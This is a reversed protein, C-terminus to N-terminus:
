NPLLVADVEIQKKDIDIKNVASIYYNQMGYGDNGQIVKWNKIETTSNLKLLLNKAKSNGKLYRRYNASAYRGVPTHDYHDIGHSTTICNFISAYSMGGGLTGTENLSWLKGQEAGVPVDYNYQKLELEEFDVNRLVTKTTIVADQMHKLVKGNIFSFLTPYLENATNDTDSQYYDLSNFFIGHAYEGESFTFHRAKLYLYEMRPATTIDRHELVTVDVPTESLLDVVFFLRFIFEPENTTETEPNVYMEFNFGMGRALEKFTEWRSINVQDLIANKYNGKAYCAQPSGYPQLRSLYTGSPLGLLVIDNTVGSFHKYMYQEFTLEDTNSMTITSNPVTECHKAWEILIDKSTIRIEKKNKNYTFDASIQSQQAIGSFTMLGIKFIVLYYFNREEALFFQRLSSGNASLTTDTLRVILDFDGGRYLGVGAMNETEFRFIPFADKPLANLTVSDVYVRSKFYNSGTYKKIYVPM